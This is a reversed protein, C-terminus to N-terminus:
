AARRRRTPKTLGARGLARTLAIRLSTVSVYRREPQKQMCRHVVREVTPPVKGPALLRPPAIHTHSVQIETSTGDFPLEGSLMEYMMVGLAYIDSQITIPDLEVQEPAMYASTGLVINNRRVREPEARDTPVVLGLDLIRVQLSGGSRDLVFHEPKLDRHVFGRDHLTEVARLIPLMLSAFEAISMPGGLDLMRDVLTPAGLWEMALYEHATSTGDEYLQAVTPAGVARMAVAEYWLRRLTYNRNAHAVKLAVCVGEDSFAEYVNAFGGTAVHRVIQYHPILPLPPEDASRADASPTQTNPPAPRRTQYLM